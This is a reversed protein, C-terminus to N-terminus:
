ANAIGGHYIMWYVEQGRYLISERGTFREIDGQTENRYEFDGRQYGSPGRMPNEEVPNRMVEM